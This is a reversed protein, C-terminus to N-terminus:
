TRAVPSSCSRRRCPPIMRPSDRRACPKWSSPPIPFTPAATAGGTARGETSPTRALNGKQRFAVLAISTAYNAHPAESLGGKPGIFGELYKFAKTIMPDSPTVQGSRLLATVVLATVGPERQTSWGGKDDQRSGLFKVARDIMARPSVEGGETQGLVITREALYALTGIGALAHGLAQRRTTMECSM